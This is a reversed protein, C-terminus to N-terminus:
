GDQNEKEDPTNSSNNDITTKKENKAQELYQMYHSTFMEFMECHAKYYELFLYLYKWIAWVVILILMNAVVTFWLMVETFM